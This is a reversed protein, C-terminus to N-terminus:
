ALLDELLFNLAVDLNIHPLGSGPMASFPPPKFTPFLNEQQRERWFSAPPIDKPIQGPYVKIRKDQGVPIGVVVDVDGIDLRAREDVTCRTSALAISMEKAGYFRIGAAQIGTINELLAELRDRQIDPVHDAKTVAFLVKDFRRPLISGLIGTRRVQLAEMAADLARCTDEFAYRGHNLASLLDVLVVQRNTRAFTEAFFPKVIKQCYEQYREAL